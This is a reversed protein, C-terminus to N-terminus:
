RKYQKSAKDGTVAPDDCGFNKCAQARLAQDNAETKGEIKPAAEFVEKTANITVQNDKGTAPREITAVNWPILRTTDGVGLVGGSSVVLFGTCGRNTDIWVDEVKGFADKGGQPYVSLGKIGSWMLLRSPAPKRGTTDLAPEKAPEKREGTAEAVDKTPRPAGAGAIATDSPREDLIFQRKGGDWRLCCIGHIRDSALTFLEGDSLVAFAGHGLATRTDIIIDKVDGIAKQDKADTQQVKAGVLETAKLYHTAGTNAVDRKAADPDQALVAGCTLTWALYLPLSRTCNM